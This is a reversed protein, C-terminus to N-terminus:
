ELTMVLGDNIKSARRFMERDVNYSIFRVSGDGMVFNAGGTHASGFMRSWHTAVTNNPHNANPAMGGQNGAWDSSGFRVICEDWGANNWPENDGGASGYVTPHVQKEGVAITNSLGDTLDGFRRYQEPSAANGPLAFTRIFMGDTGGGSIFEGGCGAYDSRGTGGYLTPARNTPCYFIKVATAAVLADDTLRFVNDQEIYPLIYYRWSWGRRDTANCCTINPGDSGARPLYQYSDHHNHLALGIQKLNNQCQMRSAAERVKQVAPLLLGILIAIIAIVVLLEILTFASRLSAYGNRRM